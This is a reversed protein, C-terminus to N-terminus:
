NLQLYDNVIQIVEKSKSRSIPVFKDNFLVMGQKILKKIKDKNVIFSRHCRLFNSKLKAQIEDLTMYTTYKADVTYIHIVRLESEIYYIDRAKISIKKGKNEASKFSILDTQEEQIINMLKYISDRVYDESYPKILFYMPDITFIDIADKLDSSTFIIKINAFEELVSNAIRIGNHKGMDVNIYVADVEGKAEDVVYTILSFPNTHKSIIVRGNLIRNITNELVSMEQVDKDCIAIHLM